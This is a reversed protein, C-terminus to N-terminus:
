KDKIAKVKPKVAPEEIIIIRFIKAGITKYAPIKIMNGDEDEEFIIGKRILFFFVPVIFVPLGILMGFVSWEHGLIILNGGTIWTFFKCVLTAGVALGLAIGLASVLLLLTLAIPSKVKDNPISDDKLAGERMWKVAFYFMPPLILIGMVILTLAVSSTLWSVANGVGATWALNGTVMARDYFFRDYGWGDWGHALIFFMIFYGLIVQQGAYYYNGKKILRYCVYYAIIGDLVNTISFILVLLTPIEEYTNWLQMTEWSTHNKLLWVGSPAFFIALYFVTWTFYKSEYWKCTEERIQRCAAFAFTAGFAYAWFFDVQIM